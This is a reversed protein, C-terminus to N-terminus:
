YMFAFPLSKSLPCFLFTPLPISRLGSQVRESQQCSSVRRSRRSTSGGTGEWGSRYWANGEWDVALCPRESDDGGLSTGALSLSLQVWRRRWGYGGRGPPVARALRVHRRSRCASSDRALVERQQQGQPVTRTRSAQRTHTSRASPASSDSALPRANIPLALRQRSTHLPAGQERRPSRTPDSGTHQGRTRNNRQLSESVASIATSCTCYICVFTNVNCSVRNPVLESAFVQDYLRPLAYAVFSLVLSYM